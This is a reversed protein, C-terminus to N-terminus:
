ASPSTIGFAELRRKGPTRARNLRSPSLVNANTRGNSRIKPSKEQNGMM